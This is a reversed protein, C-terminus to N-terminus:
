KKSQKEQSCSRIKWVCKQLPDVSIAIVHYEYCTGSKLKHNKGTWVRNKDQKGQSCSRIKRFCKQLPDVSIAIVHYEYYTGSKLKHNKRTSIRNKVKNERYFFSNICSRIILTLRERLLSSIILSVADSTWEQQFFQFVPFIGTKM